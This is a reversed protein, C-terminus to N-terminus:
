KRNIEKPPKSPKPNPESIKDIFKRVAAMRQEFLREGPKGWLSGASEKKFNSKVQGLVKRDLKGYKCQMSALALWLRLEDDIDGIADNHAKLTMKTAIAVSEGKKLRDRFTEQVDMVFDDEGIGVGWTGM